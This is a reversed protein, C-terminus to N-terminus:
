HAIEEQTRKSADLVCVEEEAQGFDRRKQFITADHTLPHTTSSLNGIIITTTDNQSTMLRLVSTMRFYAIGKGLGRSADLVFVEPWIRAAFSVGSSVLLKLWDVRICGQRHSPGFCYVESVLVSSWVIPHYVVQLLCTVHLCQDRAYVISPVPQFM